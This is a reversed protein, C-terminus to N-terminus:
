TGGVTVGVGYIMEGDVIGILLSLSSSELVHSFNWFDHNMWLGGGRLFPTSVCGALNGSVMACSNMSNKVFFPCFAM